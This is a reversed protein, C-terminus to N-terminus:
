NRPTDGDIGFWRQNEVQTKIPPKEDFAVKGKRTLQLYHVVHRGYKQVFQEETIPEFKEELTFPAKRDLFTWVGHEHADM